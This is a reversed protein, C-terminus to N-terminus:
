AVIWKALDELFHHATTNGAGSCRLRWRGAASSRLVIWRLVGCLSLIRETVIREAFNEFLHKTAPRLPTRGGFRRRLRLLWLLFSSWRVVRQFVYEALHEFSSFLRVILVLLTQFGNEILIQAAHIPVALCSFARGRQM